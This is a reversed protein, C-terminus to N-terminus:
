VMYMAVQVSNVVRRSRWKSICLCCCSSSCGKIGLIQTALIYIQCSNSICLCQDFYKLIRVFLNIAQVFSRVSIFIFTEIEEAYLIAFLCNCSGQNFLIMRLWTCLLIFHHSEWCEVLVSFYYSRNLLVPALPGLIIYLLKSPNEFIYPPQLGIPRTGNVHTWHIAFSYWQLGSLPFFNCCSKGRKGDIIKILVVDFLDLYWSSEASSTFTYWQDFVDGIHHRRNKYWKLFLM